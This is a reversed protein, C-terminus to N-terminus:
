AAECALSFCSLMPRAKSMNLAFSAHFTELGKLKCVLDKYRASTNIRGEAGAEM